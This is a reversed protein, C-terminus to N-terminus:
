KSGGPKFNVHMKIPGTKLVRITQRQSADFLWKNIKV